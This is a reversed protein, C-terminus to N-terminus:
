VTPASLLWLGLFTYGVMLVTLPIQRYVSASDAKVEGLAIIHAVLIAAVHGIVIAAVQAYWIVEIYHHHTRLSGKIHMHATGILDWGISFPDSLARVAYQAEVLFAPLYHAVHYAFAIPVMSIALKAGLGTEDAGQRDRTYGLAVAGWYALILAICAAILGATNFPILETRGPYELPNAGVLGLWRFTHSFGDFSVAALASLVFATGSATLPKLTILQACPWNIFTCGRAPGDGSEDVTWRVPALWSVMRFYVTLLEVHELWIKRGFLRIGAINFVLYGTVANALLDPDQPSPSVNEFWVVAILLFVAPWYGLAVPYKLIPASESKAGPSLLGFLHDIARWPNIFVWVNGLLVHAFVLGIWLLSWTVMPLPNALPDRSGAHGAVILIILFALSAYSPVLLAPNGRWKFLERSRAVRDAARLSRVALAIVFTVAVVSTGGIMFLHTPLLMVFGREGSHAWATGPISLLLILISLTSRLTAYMVSGETWPKGKLWRFSVHDEKHWATYSDDDIIGTLFNFVREATTKIEISDTIVVDEFFAM